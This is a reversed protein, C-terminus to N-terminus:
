GVREEEEEEEDDDSSSSTVEDDGSGPVAATAPPPALPAAAAVAVAAVAGGCSGSQGAGAVEEAAPVVAARSYELLFGDVGCGPMAPAQRIVVADIGVGAEGDLSIRVPGHTTRVVTSDVVRLAGWAAAAAAAAAADLDGGGKEGVLAEFDVAAELSSPAGSGGAAGSLADVRLEIGGRDARCIVDFSVADAPERLAFAVDGKAPWLGLLAGMGAGSGAIGWNGSDGHKVGQVCGFVVVARPGPARDKCVCVIGAVRDLWAVASEGGPAGAGHGAGDAQYYEEILLAGVPPPPLHRAVADHWAHKKCWM